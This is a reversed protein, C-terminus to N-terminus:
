LLDTLPELLNQPTPLILDASNDKIILEYGERM